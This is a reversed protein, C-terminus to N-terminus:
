RRVENGAVFHHSLYPRALVAGFATFAAAIKGQSAKLAPSLTPVDRGAEEEDMIAPAALMHWDSECCKVKSVSNLSGNILSTICLSPTLVASSTATSSIALPATTARSADATSWAIRTATSLGSKLRM